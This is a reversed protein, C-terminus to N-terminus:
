TKEEKECFLERNTINKKGQLFGARDATVLLFINRRTSVCKFPFKTTPLIQIIANHCPTDV